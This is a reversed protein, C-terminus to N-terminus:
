FREYVQQALVSLLVGIIGALVYTSYGTAAHAIRYANLIALVLLFLMALPYRNIAGILGALKGIWSQIVTM